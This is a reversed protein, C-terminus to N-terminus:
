LAWSFAPNPDMLRAQLRGAAISVKVEEVVSNRRNDVLPCERSMLGCVSEAGTMFGVLVGNGLRM